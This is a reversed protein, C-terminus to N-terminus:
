QPRIVMIGTDHSIGALYAYLSGETIMVKKGTSSAHMFHLKGKQWLAYGVHAIDLGDMNTTIAIIDGSKIKTEVKPLNEKPIYYYTRANIEKEIRRMRSISNSDTAFMPYKGTHTTMFGVHIPFPIGGIAQTMDKVIGIQQKNFIWDSFYHLRSSYGDIKGDRYRSQTVEAAFHTLTIDGSKVTRALCFCNEVFTTCDLERFNLVLQESTNRDLTHAVYPTGMFQKGTRIILKSIPLKDWKLATTKYRSFFLSDQASVAIVKDSPQQGFVVKGVLIFLFLTTAIKKMQEKQKAHLSISLSLIFCNRKYIRYVNDM